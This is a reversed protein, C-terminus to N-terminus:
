GAQDRGLGSRPPAVFEGVLDEGVGLREQDGDRRKARGVQDLWQMFPEPHPHM